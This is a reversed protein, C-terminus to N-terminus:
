DYVILIVRLQSFTVGGYLILMTIISAILSLRISIIVMCVVKLVEFLTLTGYILSTSLISSLPQLDYIIKLQLLVILVYQIILISVIPTNIMKPFLILVIAASISKILDIISLSIITFIKCKSM